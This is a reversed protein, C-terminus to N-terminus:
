RGYAVAAQELKQAIIEALSEAMDEGTGQFTNGTVTISVGGGGADLSRAEAATLVREGQHLTARYGDYPVTRQGYASSYYGDGVQELAADRAATAESWLTVGSGKSQEISKEYTDQWGNLAVTNERLAKIQDLEADNLDHVLSNSDYAATALAEANEKLNVMKAAAEKSGTQDYEASAARYERAMQKLNAVSESDWLTSSVDEGLLVASLAERSYQESLNDLYAQNEGALANVSEIASGLAGGYAEIQDQIGGKREENYAEGSANELEQELGELTSTLGSYTQSQTAMSGGYASTLADLIIQAADTGKVQSKSIMDYMTGQDVGYADALMGVAGIGRDNLINLYELTAKDSSKMRGLATAVSTMDSTSMGLAAGADGISQLVPLISDQDYGYTALTKSMATLDDYLFPTTNAMDVLDSLYKAADEESGFLTAFSIQDTERGAAIDIGDTIGDATAQNVTDYLSNYYEKFVDDQESYIETGGSILGSIIGAAGGAIMGPIGAVAGSAVGSLASSLTDSLLSATPTGIASTLIASGIGGLSSSLLQGVQGTALGEAMKSLSSSTGSVTGAEMKRFQAYYDKMSNQADKNATTYENLKTKLEELREQEAKYIGEADSMDETTANHSKRLENWSKKAEDVTARQKEIATKTTAINKALTTQLEENNEVKLALDDFDKSLSKGSSAISKM